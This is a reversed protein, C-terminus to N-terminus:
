KQTPPWDGAALRDLYAAVPLHTPPFHPADGNKPVVVVRTFPALALNGTDLHEQSDFRVCWAFKHEFSLDPQLVITLEKRVGAFAEELFHQASM